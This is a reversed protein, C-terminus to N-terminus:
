FVRELLRDLVRLSGLLGVLKAFLLGLKFVFGLVGGAEDLRDGLLGGLLQIGGLLRHLLGLIRQRLGLRLLGGLRLFLRARLQFLRPLFEVLQDGLQLL